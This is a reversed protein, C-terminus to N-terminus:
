SLNSTTLAMRGSCSHLLAPALRATRNKAAPPPKDPKENEQHRKRDNVSYPSPFMEETLERVQLHVHERNIVASSYRQPQRFHRPENESLQMSSSANSSTSSILSSSSRNGTSVSFSVSATTEGLMLQAQRLTYCTPQICFGKYVLFEGQKQPCPVTRPEWQSRRLRHLVRGQAPQHTQTVACIHCLGRKKAYNKLADGSLVSGDDNM